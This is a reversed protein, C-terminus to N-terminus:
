WFSETWKSGDELDFVDHFSQEKGNERMWTSWDVRLSIPTQGKLTQLARKLGSLSDAQLAINFIALAVIVFIKM